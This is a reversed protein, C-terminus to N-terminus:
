KTWLVGVEKFTSTEMYVYGNYRAFSDVMNQSFLHLTWVTDTAPTRGDKFRDVKSFFTKQVPVQAPAVPLDDAQRSCAALTIMTALILTMKKM